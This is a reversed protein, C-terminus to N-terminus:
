GAVRLEAIPRRGTRRVWILLLGAVVSLGAALALWIGLLGGGLQFALLYALPLGIVYYGLFNAFAAIAPRGMGRLVGGAVAQTGDSLQFAAAVPLIKTALELIAEDDTYLRPLEARLLFFGLASLTMVCVGLLLSARVARKMGDADGAGILNGVRASAGQSIGLPVMFALAAMNLVVQHSGVERKGLWGAMLTAISFAWAELSVQLGVPAGFRLVQLLGRLAFSDRGWARWAGRHLRFGIVWCVLGVVLLLTTISSAIAAGELGLAPSGLHGFILAWNLVVHFLNGIWM